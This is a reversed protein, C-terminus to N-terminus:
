TLVSAGLIGKVYGFSQEHLPQVDARMTVLFGIQNYEAYREKLPHITVGSRVGFYLQSWDGIFLSSAVNSSGYSQTIPVSTTQYFPMNAIYAPRQLPQLEVAGKLMNYAALTRPHMIAASSGDVNANGAQLEYILSIIEDYNTPTEGNAGNWIFPANTYNYIGEPEAGTGSGVLSVRDLETAFARAAEANFINEFNLSDEILERSCVVMARLTKPAFTVTGFSMDAPSQVANEAKWEATLGNVLKAMSYSNTGDFYITNAGATLVTSKPRLRDVFDASLVSPVTYGGASPTGEALAREELENKAGTLHIRLLRGTTMGKLSEDVQSESEVFSRITASRNEKNFVPIVKGTSSHRFNTSDDVADNKVKRAEDYLANKEFQKHFEISGNVEEVQKMITDFQSREENTVIKNSRTKVLAQIGEAKDILNKKQDYLQKLDNSM